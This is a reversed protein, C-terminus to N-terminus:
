NANVTLRRDLQNKVRSKPRILHYRRIEEHKSSNEFKILHIALWLYKCVSHTASKSLRLSIIINSVIKVVKKQAVNISAASEFFIPELM